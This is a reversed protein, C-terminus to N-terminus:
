DLGATYENYQADDMLEDLGSADSVKIKAIWGNDNASKKILDLDSEELEDLTPFPVWEGQVYGLRM